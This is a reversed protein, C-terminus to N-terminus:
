AASADGAREVADVVGRRGGSDLADDFPLAKAVGVYQTGAGDGKPASAAARRRPLVPDDGSKNAALTTAADAGGCTHSSQVTRCMYATTRRAALVHRFSGNAAAANAGAANSATAVKSSSASAM